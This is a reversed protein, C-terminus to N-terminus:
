EDQLAHIFRIQLNLKIYVKGDADRYVESIKHRSTSPTEFATNDLLYNELQNRDYFHYCVIDGDEKVVLFGGNAAYIGNWPRNGTMGLAVIVLFRKMVLEYWFARNDDGLGCPDNEAVKSIIRKVSSGIDHRYYNILCEAMIEHFSSDINRLNNQFVPNVVKDYVVSYGWDKLLSFWVSFFAPKRNQYEVPLRLFASDQREVEEESYGHKAKRRFRQSILNLFEIQEDTIDGVIQYRFNTGDANSNFLTSKGGLRSKISFGMERNRNVRMDHLVMRIDQKDLSSAKVNHINLAKMFDLIDPIKFANGSGDKIKRLLLDAMSAFLEQPIVAEQQEGRILIQHKASDVFYLTDSEENHERRFVKIIPFSEDEIRNYNEDGSFVKGEALLRIHAYLESWEGKNASIIDEEEFNFFFFFMDM